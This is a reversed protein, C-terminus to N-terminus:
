VSLRLKLEAPHPELYVQGAVDPHPNRRFHHKLLTLPVALPVQGGRYASIVAALEGRDAADLFGKLYGALRTLVHAHLKRTAPRKLAAMFAHLYGRAWEGPPRSGAQAALREMGRGAESGHAMLCLRHAAHFAILGGPTPGQAAFNQWRRFAFVREVFNDLLVPDDLRGEEEVPLEPRAELLARAYAGIGNRSPAGGSMRYVKVRGMGCSPSDSKLIYGSIQDLRGAMQRGYAALRDTVDLAPDEVGVARVGDAGGVLRIPMRPVGLGIAVEPCVPVFEFTRSLTATLLADRKHGGDWRVREGLLCSSVGLRIPEDTGPASPRHAKRSSHM